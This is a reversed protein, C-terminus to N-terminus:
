EDVAGCCCRHEGDHGGGLICQCPGLRTGSEWRHWCTPDDSM